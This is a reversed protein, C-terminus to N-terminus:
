SLETSLGGNSYTYGALLFNIGVPTNVYARPEIEGGIAQQQESMFLLMFFLSAVWKCQILAWHRRPSPSLGTEYFFRQLLIKSNM